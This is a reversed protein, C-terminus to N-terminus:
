WNRSRTSYFDHTNKSRAYTTIANIRKSVEKFKFPQPSSQILGVQWDIVLAATRM